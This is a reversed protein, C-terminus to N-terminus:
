VVFGFLLRFSKGSAYRTPEDLLVTKSDGCFAIAVSLKRKMGGSLNKSLTNRKEMLAVDEISTMVKEEAEKKSMKAYMGKVRAFFEIHEKVTLQPFLCDHQLCIGTEKRIQNMQTRIDKGAVLAYGSTPKVMGTLMNITTTKGAGNHGLLATVQGSYMSLSLGDVAIKEGYVKRLDKIQVSKGEKDQQKLANSIPEIPISPDTKDEVENDDMPAKATGPCWYSTTFPFYWALPTGYDSPVVRNLYWAIVSWLISDFMLMVITTAFTYGSPSDTQNFTSSNLGQGADELRGIEVMGYSFATVPHLSLVQILTGSGTEIDAAIILFYGIFFLLLGVLVARTSKTLFSAIFIGFVTVAAIFTLFWFIFLFVFDSNSYLAITAGAMAVTTLLHFLFYSLFWSWGIDSEQVSMMKMLEKQRLEKELTLSRIVAAVPYMLGLIVLLPAFPAITAYFGNEVYYKTPFPLFQVGHEAVRYGAAEAGSDSMIWDGILRQITIAGNYMYQGTCSNMYPGMNATGGLPTCVNDKKAYSALTRSTDPTTVTAPRGESEPANFNTSNVRLTYAYDKETSGEEFLIALAIKPFGTTGYDDSTVYSDIENSSNFEQIFSYNFPLATQNNLVPYNTYVYDRFSDLRGLAVSDGENKPAVALVPYECYDSRADEGRAKCARSDCKVFPVQWNYNNIPMGTIDFEDPSSTSDVCIRQAQIATVYDTFSLTIFADENTRIEAEVPQPSFNENDDLSAKIAVLICVFGVPM